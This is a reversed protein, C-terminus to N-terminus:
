LGLFKKAWTAEEGTEAALEMARRASKEALKKKGIKLNLAGITEHVYYTEQIKLAQNAWGLAHKLQNMDSIQECFLWAIENLEEMETAPFRHYHDIASQAFLAWESRKRYYTLRYDSALEEGRDPYVTAYLRQVEGLALTTHSELYDNFINDLHTKMKEATYVERFRDLHYMLYYFGDSFPDKVYNLIIDMSELSGYDGRMRLYDQAVKDMDSDYAAAKADLLKKVLAASRDGGLYRRELAFFNNGTDLAVLGLKLFEAVGYFGSVRHQVRGLSDFFLLTPFLGVRYKKALEIGEGREMDMKINVFHNNYFDGVRSDTFTKAVMMKCPGCWTTYADLFILRREQAARSLAEGWSISEFVVGQGFCLERLFLFFVVLLVRMM